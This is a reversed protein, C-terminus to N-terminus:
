EKSEFIAEVLDNIADDIAVSHHKLKMSELDNQLDNISLSLVDELIIEKLRENHINSM